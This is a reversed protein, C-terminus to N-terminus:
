TAVLILVLSSKVEVQHVEVQFGAELFPEKLANGVSEFPDSPTQGTIRFVWAMLREFASKGTIWALPLVIFKGGNTLTRRVELLTHQEFIYNAPFTALVTDFASPPFPLQEGLGRVLRDRSGEGHNIRKKALYGMQQSEDLGVAFLDLGLLLRQLHGPGHGLELVRKGKIFPVVTGVWDKWRGLSVTWAVLDYSWAFPHYLLHFFLRLFRALILM